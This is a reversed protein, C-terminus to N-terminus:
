PTRGSRGAVSVEGVSADRAAIDMTGDGRFLVQRSIM